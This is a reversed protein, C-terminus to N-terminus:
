RKVGEQQTLWEAVDAVRFKLRKGVMLAPPGEDRGRWYHITSTPVGLYDALEAVTLLEPLQESTTVEQSMEALKTALNRM